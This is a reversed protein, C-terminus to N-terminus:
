NETEVKFLAYNQVERAAELSIFPIVFTGGATHLVLNALNRTQQYYNQLLNVTQIMNWKLVIKKTGFVGTHIFIINDEHTFRYKRHYLWYYFYSYLPLAIVVLGKLGYFWALPIGLFFAPMVGFMLCNRLVFSPHITLENPFGDTSLPYYTETLTKLLKDSTVPITTRLNNLAAKSGITNFEFLYLPIPKRLWNTHWSILQIKEFPVLKLSANIFGKKISFGKATRTLNFNAYNLFTRVLTVFIAFFVILAIGSIIFTSRYRMFQGTSAAMLDGYRDTILARINNIFSLFIGIMILLTEFHNATLGLKLIETPSLTALMEDSHKEEQDEEKEIRHHLIYGSILDAQEKNLNFKMEAEETGPSDFSVEALNLIRHLWNQNTQVAQIKQFSLATQSRSFIGKKVQVEEPTIRYQFFMYEAIAKSFAIMPIAFLLIKDLLDSEDGRNLFLILLFPWGAKLFQILTKLLHMWVAMLPQRQFESWKTTSSM